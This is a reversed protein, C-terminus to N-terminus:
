WPSIKKCYQQSTTKNSISDEGARSCKKKV